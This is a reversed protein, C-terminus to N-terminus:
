ASPMRRRAARARSRRREKARRERERRLRHPDEFVAPEPASRQETLKEVQDAIASLRESAEGMERLLAVGKRFVSWALRGLVLLALVVLVTWTLFWLM